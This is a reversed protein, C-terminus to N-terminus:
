LPVIDKILVSIDGIKETGPYWLLSLLGRPCPQVKYKKFSFVTEWNKEYKVSKRNQQLYMVLLVNNVTKENSCILFCLWACFTMASMDHMKSNGIVVVNDERIVFVKRINTVSLCNAIMQRTDRIQRAYIFYYFELKFIGQCM